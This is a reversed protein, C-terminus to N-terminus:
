QVRERIWNRYKRYHENLRQKYAQLKQYETLGEDRGMHPRAPGGGPMRVHQVAGQDREGREGREVREPERAGEGAEADGRKFIYTGQADTQSRYDGSPLSCVHERAGDDHLRHIHLWSKDDTGEYSGAPLTLVYPGGEGEDPEREQDTRV